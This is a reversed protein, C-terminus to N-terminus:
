QACRQSPGAQHGLRLCMMERAGHLEIERFHFRVGRIPKLRVGRIEVFYSSDAEGGARPFVLGERRAQFGREKRTGLNATRLAQRSVPSGNRAGMGKLPRRISLALQGMPGPAGCCDQATCCRGARQRGLGARIRIRCLEDRETRHIRATKM